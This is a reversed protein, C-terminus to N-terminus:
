MRHTKLIQNVSKQIFAHSTNIPNENYSIFQSSNYIRTKFMTSDIKLSFTSKDIKNVYIVINNVLLTKEMTVFKLIAFAEFKNNKFCFTRIKKTTM